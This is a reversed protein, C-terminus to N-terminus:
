TLEWANILDNMEDINLKLIERARNFSILSKEYAERVLNTLGDEYFDFRDLKKPEDKGDDSYLEKLPEPESKHSLGVGYRKKYEVNFMIWLNTEKSIIGLEFLRSIVVKYSVRFMRKIILINELWHLGKNSNWMEIFYKNPMLFYGAFQNAEKELEENEEDEQRYSEKHLLLHGLEHAITFIQREISIKESTNVCIAPGGDDENISFGFFSDIDSKILSIKIGAKELLSCINLVVSDNSLGLEKRFGEAAEKPSRFNLKNIKNKINHNLLNCLDNYDNLWLSFEAIIQQRKNIDRLTYKKNTRFKLSSFEPVPAFLDQLNVGLVEAIKLLNNTRPESKGSEIAIYAPRSLGVSQAMETQNYGKSLRLRALNVSLEKLSM